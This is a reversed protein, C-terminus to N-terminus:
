RVMKIPVFFKIILWIINITLYFGVYKMVIWLEVVMGFQIGLFCILLYRIDGNLLNRRALVALQAFEVGIITCVLGVM